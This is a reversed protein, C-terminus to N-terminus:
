EVAALLIEDGDVHTFELLCVGDRRELTCWRAVHAISFAAYQGFRHAALGVAHDQEIFHLLGM